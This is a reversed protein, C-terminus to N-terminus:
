AFSMVLRYAIVLCYYTPGTLINSIEHYALFLINEHVHVLLNASM